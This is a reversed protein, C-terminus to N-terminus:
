EREEVLLDMGLIHIVKIVKEIQATPKGRELDSLFTISLGTFESLYAQTYHLKKRRKRIAKGLEESNRIKM